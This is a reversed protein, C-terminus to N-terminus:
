PKRRAGKAKKEDALIKDVDSKSVKLIRKTANEFAEFEPSRAEDDKPRDTDKKKPTM